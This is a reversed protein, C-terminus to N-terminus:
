QHAMENLLSASKLKEYTIVVSKHHRIISTLRENRTYNGRSPACTLNKPYTFTKKMIKEDSVSMLYNQWHAPQLVRDFPTILWCFATMRDLIHHQLYWLHGTQHAIGTRKAQLTDDEFFQEGALNSM